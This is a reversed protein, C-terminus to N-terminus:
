MVQGGATVAVSSGRRGLGHRVSALCGALEAAAPGKVARLDSSGTGAVIGQRSCGVAGQWAAEAAVVGAVSCNDIPYKIVPLPSPM